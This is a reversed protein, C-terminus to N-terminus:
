NHSSSLINIATQLTRYTFEFNDQDHITPHNNLIIQLKKITEDLLIKKDNETLSDTDYSVDITNGDIKWVLMQSSQYQHNNLALQEESSINFNILTQYISNSPYKEQTKLIDIQQQRKIKTCNSCLLRHSRSSIHPRGRRALPLSSHARLFRCCDCEISFCIMSKKRQFINKGQKTSRENIKLPYLARDVDFSTLERCLDYKLSQESTTPQM